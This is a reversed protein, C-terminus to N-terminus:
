QGAADALNSRGLIRQRLLKPASLTLLPRAGGARYTSQLEAPCSRDQAM